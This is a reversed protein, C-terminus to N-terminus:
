SRCSAFEQSAAWQAAMEFEIEAPSRMDSSSFRAPFPCGILVLLALILAATPVDLKNTRV